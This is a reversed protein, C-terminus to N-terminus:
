KQNEALKLMLDARKKLILKLDVNQCNKAATDFAVNAKFYEKLNFFCQGILDWTGADDRVIPKYSVDGKNEIFSDVLFDLAKKYDKNNFFVVGLLRSTEWRFGSAHEASRLASYARFYKQQTLYILAINYFVFWRESSNASYKLYDKYYKLALKYNERGQAHLALHFSARTDRPNQKFSEAMITTIQEDRQVERQDIAQQSQAGIRDHKIIIDKALIGTKIQQQEHVAGVFKTGNRFIRPNRFISGNDMEITILLGDKETKLYEELKGAQKLYEHGDLFLIWASKIGEMAFNRAESFDDHWDFQKLTTAYKSAIELTQDNSSNDVAIVIEDVLHRVSLIARELGIEENKVIMMLALNLPRRPQKSYYNDLAVGQLEVYRKQPWKAQFKARNTAMLTQYDLNLSKHTASGEHYIFVDEAIGLKFGAEVARLCFDDDEFNGPSFQEDLLGIKDIVSKKIAVCFFVLRHFPIARGQNNGYIVAAFNDIGSPNSYSAAGVKQPGSVSNSMPGIIDFDKLHEALHDLWFPTVIIDNNLVVIIEGQAAKIGQNVAIPFGLNQANHIQREEGFYSPSSGNDVIIIEYGTTNEKISKLCKETM